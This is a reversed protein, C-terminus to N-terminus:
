QMAAKVVDVDGGVDVNGVFGGVASGKEVKLLVM